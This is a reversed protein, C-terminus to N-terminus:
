PVRDRVIWPMYELADVEIRGRIGVFSKEARRASKGERVRGCDLESGGLCLTVWWMLVVPGGTDERARQREGSRRRIARRSNSCMNSNPMIWGDELLLPCRWKVHHGLFSGTVPAWTTIVPGEIVDGDRVAVRNGM